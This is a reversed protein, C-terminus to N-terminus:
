RSLSGPNFAFPLLTGADPTVIIKDETALMILRVPHKYRYEYEVIVQRCDGCPTAPLRATGDASLAAVALATIPIGPHASAAHFVAVREACLGSPYAANEQNSGTVVTGDDLRVAAGVRFRSYPAWASDAAKVAAELLGRDAAPLTDPSAYAEFALSVTEKKM